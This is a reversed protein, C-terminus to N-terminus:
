QSFEYAQSKTDDCLKRFISLEVHVKNHKSRTLVTFAVDLYRGSFFLM